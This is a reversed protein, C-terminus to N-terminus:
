IDGLVYRMLLLARDAYGAQGPHRDDFYLGIPNSIEWSTWRSFLDVLAIDNDDALGYLTSVIQSPTLTSWLGAQIPNPTMLIVDGSVKAATIIAQMNSEFAARSTASILDNVGLEIITLNPALARLFPLADFAGTNKNWNVSNGGGIGLNIVEIWKKSSDYGEIGAIFVNVGTSANKVVLSNAGLTGGSTTETAFAQTNGAAKNTPEGAGIAWSFTGNGSSLYHIRFTDCQGAPAFTISSNLVSSYPVRIVSSNTNFMAWTGTLALRGDNVLSTTAAGGGFWTNAHANIGRANILKALLAASSGVFMPPQNTGNSGYGQTTSDGVFVVRADSAGNLVMGMAKRWKRLRTYNTLLSGDGWIQGMNLAGPAAAGITMSGNVVSNGTIRQDGDVLKGGIGGGKIVTIASNRAM